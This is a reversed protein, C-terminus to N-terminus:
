GPHGEGDKGRPVGVTWCGPTPAAERPAVYSEFVKEVGKNPLRFHIAHMTCAEACIGCEECLDVLIVARQRIMGIVQPPCATVCDGCGDCRFLDIKPVM